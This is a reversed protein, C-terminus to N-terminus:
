SHNIETEPPESEAHRVRGTLRIKYLGINLDNM